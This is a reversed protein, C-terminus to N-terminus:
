LICLIITIACIYIKCIPKQTINISSLLDTEVNTANPGDIAHQVTDTSADANNESGM